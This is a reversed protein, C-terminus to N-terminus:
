SAGLREDVRIAARHAWDRVTLFSKADGWALSLPTLSVAGAGLASFDTGDERHFPPDEEDNVGFSFFGEGESAVQQVLGGRRYARRGLRTVESSRSPFSGPVNVNVLTRPPIESDLAAAALEGLVVGAARWDYGTRDVLRFRGDMSQQSISISGVGLLAGEVAAGATSSYTTDDGLNAGENIGSVVLSVDPMLDSLLAVRVCDVPTGDCAYIPSEEDGDVREIRVPRRFTAARSGGSRPGDPAVVTVKFGADLLATRAAYLGDSQYGDDNTLLITM